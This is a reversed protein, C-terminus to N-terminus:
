EMTPVFYGRCCYTALQETSGLILRAVPLIAV